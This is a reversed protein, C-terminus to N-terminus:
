KEIAKVFWETILTPRTIASGVVLAFAGKEMIKKATIPTNIKGEAFVPIHVTSSLKELLDYDPEDNKLHSTYPTYGSLTTSICDAGSEACLVGEEYTSIDAMITVNYRKKIEEIFKHGSLGERERITGDVAIINTNIEILQEIEKFSGTIRVTGDDFKIKLLGIVPVNVNKIIEATKAVGESRIGAAGGQIAAIAFM